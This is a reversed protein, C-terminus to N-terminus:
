VLGIQLVELYILFFLFFFVTYFTTCFFLFLVLLLSFYHIFDKCNKSGFQEANYSEFELDDEINQVLASIDVNPYSQFTITASVSTLNRFVFDRRNLTVQNEKRFNLCNIWEASGFDSCTTIIIKVWSPM